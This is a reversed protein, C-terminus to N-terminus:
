YHFHHIYNFALENNSYGTELRAVLYGVLLDMFWEEMLNQGSIIIILTIYNNTLHITEVLIM